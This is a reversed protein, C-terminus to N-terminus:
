TNAILSMERIQMRCRSCSTRMSHESLSHDMTSTGTHVMVRRRLTRNRTMYIYRQSVSTHTHTHTHTHFYIHAETRERTHENRTTDIVHCIKM